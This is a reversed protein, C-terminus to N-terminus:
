FDFRLGVQGERSPLFQLPMGLAPSADQMQQVAAPNSRNLLNFFEILAHVRLRERIAFRKSLRVDLNACHPARFANRGAAFDLGNFLGDGDVDVPARAAAFFRFGSQARFIASADFQWPLRATGHL